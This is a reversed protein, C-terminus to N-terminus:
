FLLLMVKMKQTKLKWLMLIGQVFRTELNKGSEGFQVSGAKKSDADITYIKNTNKISFERVIGHAGHNEAYYEALKKNRTFFGIIEVGEEDNNFAPFLTPRKVDRILNGADDYKSMGKYIIEKMITIIKNGEDQYKLM